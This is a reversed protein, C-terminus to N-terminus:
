WEIATSSRNAEDEQHRQAAPVYSYFKAQREYPIRLMGGERSNWPEFDAVDIAKKKLQPTLTYDTAKKEGKRSLTFVYESIPGNAKYWGLLDPLIGSASTSCNFTKVGIPNDDDDFVIFDIYFRKKAYWARPKGEEDLDVNNLECALCQGEDKTCLASRKWDYPSQHYWTVYALGKDEKYAPSSPDFEQLPQVTVSEFVGPATKNLSLYEVPPRESSEGGDIAAEIEALGTVFSM